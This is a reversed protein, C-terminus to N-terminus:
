ILGTSSLSWIARFCNKRESRQPENKKPWCSSRQFCWSRWILGSSKVTAALFVYRGIEDLLIPEELSKGDPARRIVNASAKGAYQVKTIVGTARNARAPLLAWGMIANLLTSKGAKFGGFFTIQAEKRWLVERMALLPQLTAKLPAPAHATSLTFFPELPELCELFDM